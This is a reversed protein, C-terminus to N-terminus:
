DNRESVSSPIPFTKEKRKVGHGMEEGVRKATRTKRTINSSNQAKCIVVRKYTAL